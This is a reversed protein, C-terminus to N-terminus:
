HQLYASLLMNTNLWWAIWNMTERSRNKEWDMCHIVSVLRKHFCCLQSISRANKNHAINKQMFLAYIWLYTILKCCHIWVSYGIKSCFLPMLYTFSFKKKSFKWFTLNRLINHYWIFFDAINGVNNIYM